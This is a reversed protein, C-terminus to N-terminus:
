PAAPTPYMRAIMERDADSLATNWGVEFDGITLESPIPYLMISDPDFDTNSTSADDYRMLLNRHVQAKPWNNPPGGYHAYVRDVDWPIGGAPNQHEHICALAHGFEHLVVQQYETESSEPTLWGFNMTPHDGGLTLADTGIYSWSGSLEFSIRIESDAHNGFDFTINAYRSWERAIPEVRARVEDHGDLFAVRIRRGSAWLKGTVLALEETPLEGSVVPANRVDEAIALEAARVLDEDAPYRDICSKLPGSRGSTRERARGSEQSAILIRGRVATRSCPHVELRPRRPGPLTVERSTV